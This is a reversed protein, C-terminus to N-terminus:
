ENAFKRMRKLCDNLPETWLVRCCGITVPHFVRGSDTEEERDLWTFFEKVAEKLESM